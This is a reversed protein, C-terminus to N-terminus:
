YDENKRRDTFHINKIAVKDLKSLLKARNCASFFHILGRYVRAYRKTTLPTMGSLWGLDNWGKLFLELHWLSKVLYEKSGTLFYAYALPEIFLETIRPGYKKDIFNKMGYELWKLFLKRAWRNETAQHYAMLGLLVTNCAFGKGFADRADQESTNKELERIMSEAREIYPIHGTTEFGYVLALIAWGYERNFFNNFQCPIKEFYFIDYDCIARIVDPVDDDGTLVYYHYLGQTWQHSPLSSMMRTHHYSHQPTSRHQQWSDSYHVFDVEIQHRAFATLKKFVSLDRSRLFELALCYIADYENNSWVPELNQQIHYVGGSTNFYVNGRVKFAPFRGSPAYYQTYGEDPTDGYHFMESITHFRATANSMLWSFIGEDRDQKSFLFGQHWAKCATESVAPDVFCWVPELYSERKLAKQLCSDEGDLFSFDFVSRKSMGQQLHLPEAFEPWIGFSIRGRKITINKPRQHIFDRMCCLIKTERNRIGFSGAVVDNLGKLFVPYVFSDELIGTNKVYPKFRNRDLFIDVKQKTKAVKEFGFNTYFEQLILTEDYHPFVFDCVISRIDIFIRGALCHFFQYSFSFGEIGALMELRFRCKLLKEDNEQNKHFGEWSIQFRNEGCSEVSFNEVPGNKVDFKEGDSTATFNWSENPCAINTDKWIIYQIPFSIKQNLVLKLRNSQVVFGHDTKNISLFPQNRDPFSKNTIKYLGNGNGTFDLQIWRPFGSAYKIITRAQAPVISGDPRIVSFTSSKFGPHVPISVRCPWIKEGPPFNEIHFKWINKNKM